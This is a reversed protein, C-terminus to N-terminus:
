PSSMRLHGPPHRQSIEPQYPTYATFCESRGPWPLLRRLPHLPRYFGGGLFCTLNIYNKSALEALRTRVQQESLGEPLNLKGCLLDEPIEAFLDEAKLGIQSLMEARQQDTNTIYPM